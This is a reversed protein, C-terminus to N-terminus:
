QTDKTRKRVFSAYTLSNWDDYISDRPFIITLKGFKMSFEHGDTMMNTLSCDFDDGYTTVLFDYLIQSFDKVNYFTFSFYKMIKGHQLKGFYFKEDGYNEISITIYDDKSKEYMLNIYDKLASLLDM